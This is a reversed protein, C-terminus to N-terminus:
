LNTYSPIGECAQNRWCATMGCAANKLWRTTAPSIQTPRPKIMPINVPIGGKKPLTM